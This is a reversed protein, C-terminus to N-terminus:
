AVSHDILYVIADKHRFICHVFSVQFLSTALFYWGDDSGESLKLRKDSLPYLKSISPHSSVSRPLPPQLNPNNHCNRLIVIFNGVKISM